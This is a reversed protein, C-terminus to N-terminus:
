PGPVYGQRVGTFTANIVANVGGINIIPFYQGERLFEVDLVANENILKCQGRNDIVSDFSLGQIFNRLFSGFVLNIFGTCAGIIDSKCICIGIACRCDSSGIIANALRECGVLHAVFETITVPPPRNILTPFLLHELVYIILRGYQFNIPHRDIFLQNYGAVRGTWEGQLIGLGEPDFQIPNGGCDPPIVRCDPWCCPMRWYLVFGTWTDIGFVEADGFMKGIQMVSTVELNNIFQTLDELVTWISSLLPNNRILNNIANQILNALGTIRLFTDLVTAVLGGVFDRIRNMLFEYLGRGPDRVILLFEAIIAGVPGSEAIANTFDWKSAVDYTGSPDLPLLMLDIEVEATEGERVRVGDVCGFAADEGFQGVGFGVVAFLEDVALDQIFVREFTTAVEAITLEQRGRPSRRENCQFEYSPYVAVEFREMRYLQQQPYVLRVELNGTPVERVEVALELSRGCSAQALVYIDGPTSGALVRAAALGTGRGTRASRTNLRADVSRDVDIFFSVEVDGMPEGDLDYVYVELPASENVQVFDRGGRGPLLVCRANNGGGPDVDPRRPDDTVDRRQSPDGWTGRDAVDQDGDFNTSLSAKGCGAFLAVLGM